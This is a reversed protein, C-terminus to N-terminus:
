KGEEAARRKLDSQIEMTIVTNAGHKEQFGRVLNRFKLEAPTLGRVITQREKSAIIECM